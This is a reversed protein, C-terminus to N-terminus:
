AKRPSCTFPKWLFAVGCVMVSGSALRVHQLINCAASHEGHFRSEDTLHVSSWHYNEISYSKM